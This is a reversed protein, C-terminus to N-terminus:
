WFGYLPPKESRLEAIRRRTGPSTNVPLDVISFLDVAEIESRQIDGMEFDSVRFVIVHDSKWEFFNSYVGFVEYTGGACGLEERLERRIADGLSERKEVRGGPLYWENQYTHKV